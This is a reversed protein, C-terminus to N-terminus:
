AEPVTQTAATHLPFLEVRADVHLPAPTQWAPPVSELAAVNATLAADVLADDLWEAPVHAIAYRDDQM